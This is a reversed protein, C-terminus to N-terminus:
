PSAVWYKQLGVLVHTAAQSEVAQGESGYGGSIPEVRSAFALLVHRGALAILQKSAEFFKQGAVALAFQPVHMVAPSHLVHVPKSALM